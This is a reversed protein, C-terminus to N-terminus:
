SALAAWVRRAKDVAARPMDIKDFQAGDGRTAVFGIKSGTGDVVSPDIVYGETGGIILTDRQPQCRTALAWSVQRPDRIDIDDDVVTVTKLRRDLNLALHALRRAEHRPCAKGDVAVVASFGITGGILELDVAGRVLGRLQGLLEAGAALSLLMDVDATWPCLGPYIFDRRHTIATVEMVPSNNAFYYGTSERLVKWQTSASAFPPSLVGATYRSSSRRRAAPAGGRTPSASGRSCASAVPSAAASAGNSPLSRCAAASDSAGCSRRVRRAPTVAPASAPMTEPEPGVQAKRHASASAASDTLASSEPAPTHRVPRTALPGTGPARTISTSEFPDRQHRIQDIELLHRLREADLRQEVRHGEAHVFALADADDSEVATALGGQELHQRPDLLRVRAPHAPDPSQPHGDDGLATDEGFSGRDALHHESREPDGIVLPGAVRPDAVDEGADADVIEAEGRGDVTEGATLSSANRQGRGQDLFQVQQHEVLGGVVEVDLAHLPEGFM